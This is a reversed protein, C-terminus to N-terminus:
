VIKLLRVRRSVEYPVMTLVESVEFTGGNYVVRDTANVSTNAAVTLVWNGTSALRGARELEGGRLLEFAVRGGVTSAATWTETYGGQGDSVTGMTQLVATGALFQNAVTRCQALEASTLPLSTM